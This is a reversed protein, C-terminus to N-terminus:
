FGGRWPSDNRLYPKNFVDPAPRRGKSATTDNRDFRRECCREHHVYLACEEMQASEMEDALRYCHRGRRSDRLLETPGADAAYYTPESAEQWIIEDAPPGTLRMTQGHGPGFLLVIYTERTKMADMIQQQYEDMPKANECAKLMEEITRFGSQQAVDDLVSMGPSRKQPEGSDRMLKDNSEMAARYRPDNLNSM